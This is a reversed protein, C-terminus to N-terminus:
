CQPGRIQIELLEWASPQTFQEELDPNRLGPEASMQPASLKEHHPRGIRQFINRLM